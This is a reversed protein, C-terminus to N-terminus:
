SISVSNELPAASSIAAALDLSRDEGMARWSPPFSPTHLRLVFLKTLERERSGTHTYVPEIFISVYWCSALWGALNMHMSSGQVACCQSIRLLVSSPVAHPAILLLLACSPLLAPDAPLQEQVVDGDAEVGHIRPLSVEETDKENWEM